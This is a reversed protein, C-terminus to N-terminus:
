HLERLHYTKLVPLQPIEYFYRGRLGDKSLGRVDGESLYTDAVSWRLLFESGHIKVAGKNLAKYIGIVHSIHTLNALHTRETSRRWWLDDFMQRVGIFQSHCDVM